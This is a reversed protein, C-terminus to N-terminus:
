LLEEILTGMLAEANLRRINSVNSGAWYISFEPDLTSLKKAIDYTYPYGSHQVEHCSALIQHWQSILGRAPRGSIIDTIQTNKQQFLANKYSQNAASEECQIFATGLQAASAGLDLMKRITDGAMIGGAAVVPLQIQPHEILMSVLDSTFIGSERSPNFMGRHGGAEIGQAILIDIGLAQAELAESLQTVSVMTLIESSKLAAIQSYSPLGFHFSVVRPKMDLLMNTYDENNKFSSYLKKLQTPTEKGLRVFEKSLFHIWDKEQQKDLKYEEHCFFNVQFANPTLTKTQKIQHVADDISSSGLGLAGLGGANSVAAALKPTSVGAMPALLIPHQIGVYSTFDM